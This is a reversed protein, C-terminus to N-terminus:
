MKIAYKSIMDKYFKFIGTSSSRCKKLCDKYEAETIKGYSDVALIRDSINEFVFTIESKSKERQFFYM